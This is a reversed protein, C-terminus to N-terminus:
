PEEGAAAALQRSAEGAAVALQWPMVALQWNIPSLRVAGAALQM